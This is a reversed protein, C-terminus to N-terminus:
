YSNQINKRRTEARKAKKELRKKSEQNATATTETKGTQQNLYQKKTKHITVSSIVAHMNLPVCDAKVNQGEELSAPVERLQREVYPFWLWVKKEHKRREPLPESIGQFPWTSKGLSVCFIAMVGAYLPAAQPPQWLARNTLLPMLVLLSSQDTTNRM